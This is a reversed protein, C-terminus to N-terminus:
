HAQPLHHAHRRVAIGGAGALGVLAVIVGAGIGADAWDFRSVLRTRTVRAPVSVIVLRAAPHRAFRNLDSADPSRPVSAAQLRRRAALNADRADPSRGVAAAANREQAAANADRADPSGLGAASAGPSTIAISAVMAALSTITTTHRNM